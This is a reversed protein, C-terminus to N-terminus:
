HEIVAFDWDKFEIGAGSDIFVSLSYKAQVQIGAPLTLSSSIKPETIHSLLVRREGVSDPIKTSVRICHTGHEWVQNEGEKRRRWPSTAGAWSYTNRLRNLRLCLPPHFKPNPTTLSVGPTLLDKWDAEGRM